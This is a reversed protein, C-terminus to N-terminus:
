RTKGLKGTRNGSDHARQDRLRRLLRQQGASVTEPQGAAAEQLHATGVGTGPPTGAHAAAAADM